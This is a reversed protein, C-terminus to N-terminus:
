NLINRSIFVTAKTKENFEKIEKKKLFLETKKVVEWNQKLVIVMTFFIKHKNVKIIHVAAFLFNTAATKETTKM